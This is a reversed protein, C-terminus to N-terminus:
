RLTNHKFFWKKMGEVAMVYGIVIGFIALYVKLPLATFQLYPALPTMPLLVTVACITAVGLALARSPRNKFCSGFTRVVLVICSASIVSEVFWGTRFEMETANLLWLLVGFTLFDFFSSVFGFVLMFRRIFHINWRLPKSIMVPDVRDTAILMEPFDTFFNTLLVQKPLLPLFTLLLSAGAMSFMNGFNASTAMFIYKLTNAFTKRGADLGELLSSLDKKLLVFDAVEKLAHVSNDVAIGVDSGHLASIDNIGDGMFGVVHGSKRLSQIIREKHAPHMEAFVGHTELQKALAPSSMKALEAGTVVGDQSIGVQKAVHHAVLRDDGTLLKLTVGRKQFEDIIQVVGKKLTDVFLLFGLFVMEKEDQHTFSPGSEKKRYAIALVRHGQECYTSFQSRIEQIVEEIKAVKGAATEAYTCISVMEEFSGKSIMWVEGETQALISIKKRLFDYPIEDLKKWASVEKPAELIAQDIPNTYGTQYTANLFAFREGKESPKGQFDYTAAWKIKGSTLTGTKDVCLVDISAFNAIAALKKVIVHHKAMRKAGHTLNITIIAPLLQPTLGVALALAFLLSEIVPRAFYINFAFIIILLLFTIKMFIYGFQQIGHEFETLPPKAAAGAALKGFETTNGVRVVVAKATGSVVHTGMFLVNTKKSLPASDAVVGPSKEAYFTEGTLVAEDVFLDKSELLYCDAPIVSGANLLLIDGIVVHESKIEKKVGNRLVVSKLHIIELLKDMTQKASKEQFFSLLASVFIITFIIFADSKDGLVLSIATAFLLLLIFPSKFQSFFLPWPGGKKKSALLKHKSLTYRYKAAQEDLGSKADTKLDALLQAAPVASFVPLDLKPM